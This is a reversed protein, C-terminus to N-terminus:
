VKRMVAVYFGDTETTRPTMLLGEGSLKAAQCFMFSREGLSHAALERPPVVAFDRHRQLFAAVQDGNEEKLV